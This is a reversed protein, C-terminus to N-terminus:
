SFEDLDPAFFEGFEDFLAAVGELDDAIVLVGVGLDDLVLVGVVLVLSDREGASHDGFSHHALCTERVQEVTGAGDLQVDAAVVEAFLCVGREFLRVDAVDDAYLAFDKRGLHALDGDM